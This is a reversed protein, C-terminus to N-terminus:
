FEFLISIFNYLSTTKTGIDKMNIFKIYYYISVIFFSKIFFKYFILIINIDINFCTKSSKSLM